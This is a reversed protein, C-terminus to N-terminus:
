SSIVPAPTFRLCEMARITPSKSAASTASLFARDILYRREMALSGSALSRDSKSKLAEAGALAMEGDGDRPGADSVAGAGAEEVDDVQDVAEFGVGAVSFGSPEGVLERPDIQHHEVFEAVQGEGFAATLQQEMEDATEVLSGRHDDGRVQWQSMRSVPFWLQRKM